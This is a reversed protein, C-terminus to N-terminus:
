HDSIQNMVLRHNTLLSKGDFDIAFAVGYPIILIQFRFRQSLRGISDRSLYRWLICQLLVSYDSGLENLFDFLWDESWILLKSHSLIRELNDVGIQSLNSISSMHSAIFEIEEDDCMSYENKLLLRSIATSSTLEEKSLENEVVRNMMESNYFSRGVIRLISEVSENLTIMAGNILKAVDIESFNDSSIGDVVFKSITPDSSLLQHIRPSIFVAQFRPVFFSKKAIIIEFSHEEVSAAREIGAASLQFTERQATGQRQM